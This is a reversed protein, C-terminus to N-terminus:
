NMNTASLYVLCIVKEGDITQQVLSEVTQIVAGIPDNNIPLSDFEQEQM